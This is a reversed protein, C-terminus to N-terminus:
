IDQLLHHNERILRCLNVLRHQVDEENYTGNSKKKKDKLKKTKLIKEM